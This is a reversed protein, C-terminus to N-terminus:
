FALLSTKLISNCSVEWDMIQPNVTICRYSRSQTVSKKKGKFVATGLRAEVQPCKLYYINPIIDNILKWIALKAEKGAHKLYEICYLNKVSLRGFQMKFKPKPPSAM